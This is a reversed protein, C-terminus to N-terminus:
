PATEPEIGTNILMVRLRVLGDPPTRRYVLVNTDADYLELRQIEALGPVERDLLPRTQEPTVDTPALGTGGSTLVVDAGGAIVERLAAGVADGDPVVRTPGVEFGMAELGAVLVPGAEDAYVGSAARTSAVVVAARGAGRGSGGGGAGEASGTGAADAM